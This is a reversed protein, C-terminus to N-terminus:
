DDIMEDEPATSLLKSEVVISLLYPSPYFCVMRLHNMSCNLRRQAKWFDDVYETAAVQNAVMKLEQLNPSSQFLRLMVLTHNLDKLNIQLSISKLGDYTVPLRKSLNGMALFKMFYHCISLKELGTLCGLVRVLNSIEGQGVPKDVVDDNLFISIFSLNPSDRFSMDAFEGNFYFRKLNPGCIKICNCGDLDVLKLIELNTCSSIMSELVENALTVRELSLRRLYSFGKFMPPPKLVCGCLNLYYISECSFFSSHVKYPEGTSFNLVLEKVGNRSLFLLWSHIVYGQLSHASLEFKHISGKHQLLVRDVFNLLKYSRLKRDNTFSCINNEHFVLNPITTWKYRWKNSLLTTRVADRIPLYLLITEMVEDPLNSIIDSSPRFSREM